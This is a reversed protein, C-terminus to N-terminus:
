RLGQYMASHVNGYNTKGTKDTYWWIGGFQESQEYVTVNYGQALAYKASVLGSTGGGIVAVNLPPSPVADIAAANLESISLLSILAGFFILHFNLFRTM